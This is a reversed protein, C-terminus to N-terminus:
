GSSPRWLPAVMPPAPRVRIQLGAIQMSVTYGHPREVHRGWEFGDRWVGFSATVAPQADDRVIFFMSEGGFDGELEPVQAGLDAETASRLPGVITAAVYETEAHSVFVVVRTGIFAQLAALSEEYTLPTISM